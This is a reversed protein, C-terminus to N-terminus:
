GLGPRGPLDGGYSAIDVGTFVVERYGQEVAERTRAAVEGMPVSRSAGRGFPIICFTCRHDCGNQVQIFARQLAGEHRQREEERARSRWPKAPDSLIHGGFSASRLRVPSSLRPTPESLVFNQEQRYFGEGTRGQSLLSVSSHLEMTPKLNQFASPDTKIDNAIVADVEAMGSFKEPNIQAACGTVIIRTGPRERRLRRISQCAQREAEATVACTNVIIADDLGATQAHRRMMESEQANLRCGFTIVEPTAM